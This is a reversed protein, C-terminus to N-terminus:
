RVDSYGITPNLQFLAAKSQSLFIRQEYSVMKCVKGKVQTALLISFLNNEMVISERVCTCLGSNLLSQNRTDVYLYM